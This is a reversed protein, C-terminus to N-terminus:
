ILGLAATPINSHVRLSTGLCATTLGKMAVTTCVMIGFGALTQLAQADSSHLFYRWLADSFLATMWPSCVASDSDTGEHARLTHPLCGDVPMGAPPNQVHTYTAQIIEQLRNEYQADGNLEWAALAALLAYTHHRETWFKATPTYTENWDNSAGGVQLITERLRRDGTLMLNLLASHGYSYKLDDFNKLTFYGREDMLSAYFQTARHAHRLWKLAGTRIYQNFLVLSRDFLWPAAETKYPVLETVGTPVDNVATRAFNEAAIDLWEFSQAHMSTETRTRLLCASLWDAPFTVYARPDFVTNPYEGDTVAVWDNEPAPQSGLDLNRQDGWRIEIERPEDGLPLHVHILASRVSSAADNQGLERWAVLDEIHSPLEIGNEDRITISEISTVSGKPFPAGFTVIQRDTQAAIPHVQARVSGSLVAKPFLTNTCRLCPQAFAPDGSNITGDTGDIPNGTGTSPTSGGDTIEGADAIDSIMVNGKEGTCATILIVALLVAKSGTHTFGRDNSQANQMDM